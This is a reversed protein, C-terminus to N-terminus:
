AQSRRCLQCSCQMFGTDGLAGLVEWFGSLRHDACVATRGKNELGDTDQEQNLASLALYFLRGVQHTSLSTVTDHISQWLSGKGVGVGKPNKKESVLTKHLGPQDWVQSEGAEAEQTRPNCVHVLVQFAEKRGGGKQSPRSRAKEQTHSMCEQKHLHM